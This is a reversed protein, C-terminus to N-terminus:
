KIAKEEAILLSTAVGIEATILILALDKMSSPRVSREAWQYKGGKIESCDRQQGQLDSWCRLQAQCEKKINLLRHLESCSYGGEIEM